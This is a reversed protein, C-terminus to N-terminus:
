DVVVVQDVLFDMIIQDLQDMTHVVLAV